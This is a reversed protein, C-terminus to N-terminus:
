IWKTVFAFLTLFLIILKATDDKLKYAALVGSCVLINCLIGKLSYNIHQLM